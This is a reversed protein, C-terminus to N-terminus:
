PPPVGGYVQLWPTHLFELFRDQCLLLLGRTKWSQHSLWTLATDADSHEQLSFGALEPDRFLASFFPPNARSALYHISDDDHPTVHRQHRNVLQFYHTFGPQVLDSFEKWSMGYSTQLIRKFAAFLGHPAVASGVSSCLVKTPAGGPGRSIMLLPADIATFTAQEFWPGRVDAASVSFVELPLAQVCMNHTDVVLGTWEWHPAQQPAHQQPAHQGGHGGQQQEALSNDSVPLHGDDSGRLMVFRGKGTVSSWCGQERMQKKAKKWTGTQQLWNQTNM